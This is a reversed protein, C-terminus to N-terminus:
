RLAHVQLKPGSPRLLEVARMVAAHYRAHVLACGTRRLGRDLAPLIDIHAAPPTARLLKGWLEVPGSLGLVAPGDDPMGPSAIGENVTVALSQDGLDLHLGGSWYRAALVFEGDANCRKAWVSESICIGGPEALSELRAAVNVGDGYIDGRDEIVDGLNVGIRFQVKRDDPLDDNRTGLVNQIHAACSLADVVAEFMALVADGAYHMVRGGHSEITVAIQDLYEALRRHTADEDESTLRAYGVVDAYLIAALKRPLRDELDLYTRGQTPRNM